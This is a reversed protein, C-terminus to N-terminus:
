HQQRQPYYDAKRKILLYIAIVAYIIMMFSVLWVESNMLDPRYNMVVFAATLYGIGVLVYLGFFSTNEKDTIGSISFFTGNIFLWVAFMIFFYRETFNDSPTPFTILVLGVFLDTLGEMLIKPNMNEDFHLFLYILTLFAGCLLVAAFAISLGEFAIDTTLALIAPIFLLAARSIRYGLGMIKINQHVTFICLLPM